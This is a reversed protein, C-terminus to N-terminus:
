KPAQLDAVIVRLAEYDERSLNDYLLCASGCPIPIPGSIADGDLVSALNM